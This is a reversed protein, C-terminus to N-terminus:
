VNDDNLIQKSVISIQQRMERYADHYGCNYDHNPSEEDTLHNSCFVSNILIHNTLGTLLKSFFDYQKTILNESINEETLDQNNVYTNWDEVERKTELIGELGKYRKSSLNSEIDENILDLNRQATKLNELFGEVEKNATALRSRLAKVEKQTNEM